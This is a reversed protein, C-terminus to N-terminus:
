GRGSSVRRSDVTRGDHGGTTTVHAPVGPEAGASSGRVSHQPRERQPLPVVSEQRAAARLDEHLQVGYIRFAREAMDEAEQCRAKIGMMALALDKSGHHPKSTVFAELEVWAREFDVLAM